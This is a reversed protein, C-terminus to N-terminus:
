IEEEWEGEDTRTTEVEQWEENEDDNWGFLFKFIGM